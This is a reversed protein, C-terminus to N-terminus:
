MIGLARRLDKMLLFMQLPDVPSPVFDFRQYFARASEDKAHVLVARVGIIDAAGVIRLLADKLLAAGLGHGHESQDVALRGIMAVPVPHRALGKAVREPSDDRSVSGATVAYYGVVTNSRHVVYTQATGAAQNVLAFRALWVNLATIGCDFGAVVHDRSLKETPSLGLSV